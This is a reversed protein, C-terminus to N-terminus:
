PTSTCLLQPCSANVQEYQRKLKALPGRAPAKHSSKGGGEGAVATEGVDGGVAANDADNDDDDDEYACAAAAPSGSASSQKRSEMSQHGGAPPKPPALKYFKNM